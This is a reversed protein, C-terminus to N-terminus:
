AATFETAMRTGGWEITLSGRNEQSSLKITLAEVSADMKATVLAAEAVLKQPEWSRPTVGDAVILSWKDNGLFKLVLTYKGPAISQGGLTLGVDTTLVTPTDAGLRWYSGPAIQSLLDRGKLTPRGYEIAVTGGRISTTATGRENGHGLVSSPLSFVAVATMIVAVVVFERVGKM